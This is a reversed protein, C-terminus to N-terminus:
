HQAMRKIYFFLSYISPIIIWTLIGTIIISESKFFFGSIFIGIAIPFSLYGLVKHAVTWTDEDRITWPLRLGLYRNFPIKPSLNGFYMISVLCLGLSLVDITKSDLYNKIPSIFLISCSIIIFITLMNLNRITNIKPNDQSLKAINPAKIHFIVLSIILLVGVISTILNGEPIILGIILILISTILFLIRTFSFKKM